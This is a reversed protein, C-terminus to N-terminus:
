THAQAGALRGLQERARRNRLASIFARLLEPDREAASDVLLVLVKGDGLEASFPTEEPRGPPTEGVAWEPNAVVKM